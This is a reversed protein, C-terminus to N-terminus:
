AERGPWATGCYPCAFAGAPRNFPQRCFECGTTEVPRVEFDCLWLQGDDRRHADARDGSLVDIRYLWGDDYEAERVVGEGTAQGQAIDFRVRMGPQLPSQQTV